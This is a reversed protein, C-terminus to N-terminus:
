RIELKVVVKGSHHDEVEVVGPRDFTLEHSSSGAAFAVEQDPTSHVHLEGAADATIALTVPEGVSAKVTKGNPSIDHGKITIEITTGAAATPTPTPSPTSSGPSESPTASATESATTDSDPGDDQSACGTLGLVIVALGAVWTSHRVVFEESRQVAGAFQPDRDSDRAPGSDWAPCAFRADARDAPATRLLSTSAHRLPQSRQLQGEQGTLGGGRRHVVRRHLHEVRPVAPEVVLGEEVQHGVPDREDGAVALAQLLDRPPQGVRDPDVVVAEVEGVVDAPGSQWPGPRHLLQAVQDGPDGRTGEVLV